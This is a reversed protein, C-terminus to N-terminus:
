KEELSKHIEKVADKIEKVDNQYMEKLTRYQEELVALRTDQKGTYVMISIVCSVVTILVWVINKFWSPLASVNQRQNAM